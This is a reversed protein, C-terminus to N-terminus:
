SQSYAPSVFRPIIRIMGPGFSLSKTEGNAHVSVEGTVEDATVIDGPVDAGNDLRVAKYRAKHESSEHSEIKM